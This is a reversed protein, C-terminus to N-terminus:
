PTALVIMWRLRFAFRVALSLIALRLSERRSSAESRALTLRAQLSILGTNGPHVRFSPRLRQMEPDNPLVSTSDPHSGADPAARLATSPSIQGNGKANLRV